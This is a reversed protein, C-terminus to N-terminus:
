EIPSVDDTITYTSDITIKSSAHTSMNVIGININDDNGSVYEATGDDSHGNCLLSIGSLATKLSDLTNLKDKSTNQYTFYFASTSNTLTLFHSYYWTVYQLHTLLNSVRKTSGAQVLKLINFEAYKHSSLNINPALYGTIIDNDIDLETIYSVSAGDKGLKVINIKDTSIDGDFTFFNNPDVVIENISSTEVGGIGAEKLANKERENLGTIEGDFITQTKFRTSKVPM